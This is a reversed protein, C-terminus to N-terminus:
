RQCPAGPPLGRENIIRIVAPDVQGMGDLAIKSLNRVADEPTFAMLGNEGTLGNGDIAMFGARLACDIATTAKLACSAKAGDCIMGGLDGIVNNVALLVKQSDYTSQQYLIGVADAIGSGTACGCVAALEGIHCKVYANILHALAISRLIRERPIGLETGVVHLTITVMLGQNGSGGSTYVAHNVGSMRADVAKAVAVKARAFLDNALYGKAQMAELQSGVRGIKDGCAIMELNTQVAQEIVALDAPALSDALEWLQAFNMRQLQERYAPATKSGANGAGAVPQGDRELLAIGTHSEALVCRAAHEKGKVVAEIRFSRHSDLCAIQAKGQAILTKARALHEPTAGSLLQLRLRPDALCAGVAAAILNGTAGNTYPVVVGAGNKYTGPDVLLALELVPEGLVQAALAGAYACAAPETCGTAPIVEHSIIEHYLQTDMPM